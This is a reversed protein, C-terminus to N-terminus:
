FYSIIYVGAGEGEEIKLNMKKCVKELQEADYLGAIDVTVSVIMSNSFANELMERLTDM